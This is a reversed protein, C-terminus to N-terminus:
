NETFALEVIKETFALKGIKRLLGNQGLTKTLNDKAIKERGKKANPKSRKAWICAVGKYFQYYSVDLSHATHLTAFM